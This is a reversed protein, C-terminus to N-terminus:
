VKLYNFFPFGTISIMPEVNFFTKVTCDRWCWRWWSCNVNTIERWWRVVHCTRRYKCWIVLLLRWFPWNWDLELKKMLTEHVAYRVSFKINFRKSYNTTSKQRVLGASNSQKLESLQIVWINSVLSFEWLLGLTWFIPTGEIPGLKRLLGCCGTPLMSVLPRCVLLWSKIEWERELERDELSVLWLSRSALFITTVNM